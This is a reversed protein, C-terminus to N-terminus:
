PALAKRGAGSPGFGPGGSTRRGSAPLRRSGVGLPPRTRRVPRTRWASVKERHGKKYKSESPEEYGRAAEDLRGERHHDLARNLPDIMPLRFESTTNRVRPLHHRDSMPSEAEGAQGIVGMKPFGADMALSGSGLVVEAAERGTVDGRHM